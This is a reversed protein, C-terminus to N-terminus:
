SYVNRLFTLYLNAFCIWVCKKFLNQVRVKKISPPWHFSRSFFFFWFTKFLFLLFNFLNLFFTKLVSNLLIYSPNVRSLRQFNTKYTQCRQKSQKLKVLKKIVFVIVTGLVEQWLRICNLTGSYILFWTFFNCFMPRNWKIIDLKLM